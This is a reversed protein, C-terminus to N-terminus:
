AWKASSSMSHSALHPPGVVEALTFHVLKLFHSLTPIPCFDITHKFYLM